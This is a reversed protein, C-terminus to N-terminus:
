TQARRCAVSAAVLRRGDTDGVITISRPIGPQRRIFGRRELVQVMQNLSPAAVFFHRAVDAEAPSM